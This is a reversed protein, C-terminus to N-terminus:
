ELEDGSPVYNLSSYLVWESVNGETYIQAKQKIKNLDEESARFTTNVNKLSKKNKLRMSKHKTKKKSM